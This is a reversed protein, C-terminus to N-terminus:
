SRSSPPAQLRRGIRGMAKVAQVRSLVRRMFFAGWRNTRGPIVYPGRGLAALAARVVGDPEMEPPAFFGSRPPRAALYGPTRTAGPCCALVDVGYARCEDWLGEALVLNYAKTAAYHALLANGQFAALSSMLIIGGRGRARMRRGFHYALLAPTVCNVALARQHDEAVGDLYEGIPSFAANCVLLGVDKDDTARAIRGGADPRELDLILTEVTVGAARRQAAAVTALPEDRRDILLLHLGRGALAEAYAAGIGEGAGAVVGWPGYRECFRDPEAM